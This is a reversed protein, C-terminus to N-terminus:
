TAGNIFQEVREITRLTLGAEPDKLRTVLATNNVSQRGYATPTMGCRACYRLVKNLLKQKAPNM